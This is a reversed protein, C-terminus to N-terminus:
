RLSIQSRRPRSQPMIVAADCVRPVYMRACPRWIPHSQSTDYRPLSAHAALRKGFPPSVHVCTRPTLPSVLAIFFAGTVCSYRSSYQFSGTNRTTSSRAIHGYEIGSRSPPPDAGCGLTLRSRYTSYSRFYVRLSSFGPSFPM